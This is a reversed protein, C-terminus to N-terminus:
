GKGFFRDLFSTALKQPGPIESPLFPKAKKAKKPMGAKFREALKDLQPSIADEVMEEVDGPIDKGYKSRIDKLAKMRLLKAENNLKMNYIVREKGERSQLLSPVTKLFNEVEIQTIRNGFYNKLNKMFGLSLKEFEQSEPSMLSSLDIGLKLVGGVKALTKYISRVRPRTLEKTKILESMRDLDRNERRATKFDETLKKIAAKNEKRLSLKEMREEKAIEREEKRAEKEKEAAIKKEALRQKQAMQEIRIRHEPKIRPRRLIDEFRTPREERVAEKRTPAAEPVGVPEAVGPLMPAAEPIQEPAAIGMAQLADVGPEAVAPEGRLGSLAQELGMGEAGALYNKLVLSQLEKPLYSIQSAQQEPIGLAQLGSATQTQQQRQLMKNMKDQLLLQLGQGLRTGVAQGLGATRSQGPLLQIAM